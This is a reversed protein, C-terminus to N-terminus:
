RPFDKHKLKTIIRHGARSKLELAPRAVIGEAYFDGWTSQLGKEVISVMGGLTGRGILPVVSLGLKQGLELVDERQLWWDGIKIDFLVFSVGDPIYNGGGKQIKAGYGEGYLVLDTSTLDAADFLESTFMENLKNVLRAPLQSNATRGGFSVPNIKGNTSFGGMEPNHYVRINTGDVKETFDWENDKLFAFEPISYEGFLMTKHKTEPDRKFISQIKHYEM